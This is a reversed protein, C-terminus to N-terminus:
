CADPLRSGSSSAPSPSSCLLLADDDAAVVAYLMGVVADDPCKLVGRIMMM